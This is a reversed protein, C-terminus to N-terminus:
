RGLLHDVSVNFLDALKCLTRADPFRKGSEYKAYSARDIHLYFAVQRQTMDNKSRLIKLRHGFGDM